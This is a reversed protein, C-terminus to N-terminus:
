EPLIIITVDHEDAAPQCTALAYVGIIATQVPRGTAAALISARRHAREVDSGDLTISVEALAYGSHDPAALIIDTEELDDCQAASIRQAATAQDLINPIHNQDPLTIAYVTQPDTMALHRRALRSARRAVKREYDSGNLRNLTGTMQTQQDEMRTQRDEMHGMRDEMRTQRDEMHGMRDEMRTQRDEMRAMRADNTTIYDQVTQTLQAVAQQLERVIAPLQLFEEGLIHQRMAVALEPNASMADLIDQFTHIPTAMSM